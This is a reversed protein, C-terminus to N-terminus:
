AARKAAGRGAGRGRGKGLGYAQERRKQREKDRTTCAKEIEAMEAPIARSVKSEADKKEKALTQKLSTEEEIIAILKENDEEDQEKRGDKLAQLAENEKGKSEEM